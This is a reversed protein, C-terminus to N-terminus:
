RSRGFDLDRDALIAKDESWVRDGSGLPVDDLVLEERGCVADDHAVEVVRAHWGLGTAEEGTTEDGAVALVHSDEEAVWSLSLISIRSCDSTKWTVILEVSGM